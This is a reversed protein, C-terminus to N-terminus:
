LKALFRNNYAINNTVEEGIWDPIMHNYLSYKNNSEIECLILGSEFIDVILLIDNIHKKYRIKSIHPCNKLKAIYDNFNCKYGFRYRIKGKGFKIDIYCRNDDYLRLRCSIFSNFYLYWQTINNSKFESLDPLYKVLFRREKELKFSM